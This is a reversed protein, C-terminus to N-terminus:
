GLARDVDPAPRSATAREDAEQRIMMRMWQKMLPLGIMAWPPRRQTPAKLVTVRELVGRGCRAGNSCHQLVAVCELVRARPPDPRTLAKQADRWVGEESDEVPVLTMPHLSMREVPVSIDVNQLLQSQCLDWRVGQHLARM